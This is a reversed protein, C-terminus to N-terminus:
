KALPRIGTSKIEAIEIDNLICIWTHGIGSVSPLYGSSSERALVEPDFFSYLKITKEHPADCDDGASVSDRTLVINIQPREKNIQFAKKM